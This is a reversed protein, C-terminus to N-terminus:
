ASAVGGPAPVDRGRGAGAPVGRRRGAPDQAAPRPRLRRVRAAGPGAELRRTPSRPPGSSPGTSGAGVVVAEQAVHDAFAKRLLGGFMVRRWWFNLHVESPGVGLTSQCVLRRVGTERMAAVVARTGAERVGGGRGGGLVIVVADADKVPPVCAVADTPDAEFVTLRDHRRTLRAADRTVATVDHGADLAQEVLRRGITGTAGFVTINM